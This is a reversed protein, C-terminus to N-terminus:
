RTVQPKPQPQKPAAPVGAQNGMGGGGAAAMLEQPDQEGGFIKAKDINYVKGFEDSLGSVNPALGLQFLTMADGMMERFMLKFYASSEEERPEVTIYWHIEAERIVKQSFYMRRVPYGYTIEESLSLMRIAQPTPLEGDMPIVRREGRGAGDIDVERTVSRYRNSGDGNKGIPELWNGIINYLRLYGLKVELMTVAAVILGLTLKAQRQVEIIETATAGSKAQQGQFINSITSKEIEDQLEKFIQYESSTVGQSEQGIAQLANPPIGMTINGPNLVRAPIVRNTTNVYPPTISKRTKLEFLRLMRDLSKSLEFVAGSSVFSKGYAFQSNITYLIQKTVNYRGAPTVESLPFGPPLLMVGNILIMFEDRAQDQYKIIEVQNDKLKSIRFKSDYITRAGTGVDAGVVDPTGPRVYTWNEFSGYLTKAMEYSMQEVTFIYPQDNMSFATIDGLYVNLGYLLERSCGEFVKELKETYGAFDRFKGNYKEKLKKKIEFKTVWNEQVFVTGQKLLERQRAMRKEKDGGDDGGDHEATITMIDTFAVGLERLSQNNRDYANVTPTLNLNNVHALLTNLKSEITGTSLPEEAPNDVPELYTHAIKENQEYYKAYTRNNFEPRKADRTEQASNLRDILYNRYQVETDTYQPEVVDNKSPKKDLPNLVSNGSYSLPQAFAIYAM